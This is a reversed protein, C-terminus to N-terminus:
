RATPPPASRAKPACAEARVKAFSALLDLDVQRLSAPSADIASVGAKAGGLDIASPPAAKPCGATFGAEAVQLLEVAHARGAHNYDEPWTLTGSVVARGEPAYSWALTTQASSTSWSGGITIGSWRDTRRPVVGEPLAFGWGEAVREQVESALMTMWAAERLADLPLAGASRRDKRAQDTSAGDVSGGERLVLGSCSQAVYASGTALDYARLEDCFNYHGRRGRLFLWGKKPASVHGLPLRSRERTARELCSRWVAYREDAPAQTANAKCTDVSPPPPEKQDGDLWRARKADAFREFFHEARQEWGRTELGCSADALPCVLDGLPHGRRTERTLTKRITPAVVSTPFSNPTRPITLALYHSLWWKGGEDHWWTKLAHGSDADLEPADPAGLALCPLELAARIADEAPKPNADPALAMIMRDIAEIRQEAERHEPTGRDCAHPPAEEEEAPPSASASQAPAPAASAAPARAAPAARSPVQAPAGACAPLLGMLVLRLLAHKM